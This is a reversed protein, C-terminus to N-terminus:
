TPSSCGPPSGTRRTWATTSARSARTAQPNIRSRFDDSAMQKRWSRAEDDCWLADIPFVRYDHASVEGRAVARAGDAKEEASPMHVVLDLRGLYKTFAGSHQLLVKREPQNPNVIEQTPNLM